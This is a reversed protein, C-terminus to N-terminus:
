LVKRMQTRDKSNLHLNRLKTFYSGTGSKMAAGWTSWDHAGRAMFATVYEAVVGACEEDFPVVDTPAFTNRVGDWNIVIQHNDDIAPYVLFTKADPAITLCFSNGNIAQKGSVLASRDSWKFPLLPAPDTLSGGSAAQTSPFQWSIAYGGVSPSATLGIVFGDPTPEGVLFATISDPGGAPTIVSFTPTPPVSLLNLGTIPVLIQGVSIQMVNPSAATVQTVAPIEWKVSYGGSSPPANVGITFGDTTTPGILFAFIADPPNAPALLTLVPAPPAVALGLGTVTVTLVGQPVAINGQLIPTM